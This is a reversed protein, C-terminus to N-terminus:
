DYFNFQDGNTEKFIEFVADMVAQDTVSKYEEEKGEGNICELIMVVEADEDDPLLFAYEKGKYEILDLFEYRNVKGNEDTLEVYRDMEDVEEM